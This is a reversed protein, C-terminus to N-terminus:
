SSRWRQGREWPALAVLPRTWQAVREVDFRRLPSPLSALALEAARPALALKTPWLTRVPGEVLIQADDPRLGGSVRAEARDVRYTCWECVAPDFGPLVQRLEEAAHAVLSSEDRAVGEEALQGGVQWVIRGASDEASSITVRTRAGDICHGNLVALPHDRAGRVLTMHLPRRQAAAPDLGLLTRLGENGIGAALIVTDPALDLVDGSRPDLLSLVVGVRGAPPRIELGSRLDIRLISGRHRTSLEHLMSVPDIVQEDIRSVNPCGGLVPPREHASLATPKVRLALGAGLMAITSGLSQTRWLHCQHSRIRMGRLSPQREGAECARWLEPMAAIAEASATLMGRLSYKFGGHIIGQASVTQGAGLEGAELLVASRGSRLLADLTWLGAAGGGFVM